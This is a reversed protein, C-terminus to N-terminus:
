EQEREIDEKYPNNKGMDLWGSDTWLQLDEENDVAAFEEENMKYWDEYRQYFHRIAEPHKAKVLGWDRTVEVIDMDIGIKKMLEGLSGNDMSTSGYILQQDPKETITWGADDWEKAEKMDTLFQHFEENRSYSQGPKKYTNEVGLKQSLMKSIEEMSGDDVSLLIEKQEDTLLFSPIAFSASSSNSVYGLRIKM